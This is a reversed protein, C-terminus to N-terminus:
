TQSKGHKVNRKSRVVISYVTWYKSDGDAYKTGTKNQLNGKNTGTAILRVQGNPRYGFSRHHYFPFLCVRLVQNILNQSLGFNSTM